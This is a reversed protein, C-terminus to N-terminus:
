VFQFRNTLATKSVASIPYPLDAEQIELAGIIATVTASGTSTISTNDSLLANASLLYASTAGVADAEFIVNGATFASSTSLHTLVDYAANTTDIVTIAVAIAGVAESIVDGVKFASGKSIRTATASGGTIVTASKVVKAVRTTYNVALAAGKLVYAVASLVASDLTFGGAARDAKAEDWLVKNVPDISGNILDM